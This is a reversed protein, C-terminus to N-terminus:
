AAREELQTRVAAEVEDPLHWLGLAGRCPVPTDLVRVNDLRWHWQDEVAWPSCVTGDPNGCHHHSGVIEAVAVVAGRHDQEHAEEVTLGTQEAIWDLTDPGVDDFTKSAHIAVPGVYNTRYSRNEVTKGHCIALAWPQKVSLARLTM